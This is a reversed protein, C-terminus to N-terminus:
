KNINYKLRYCQDIVGCTYDLLDPDNYTEVICLLHDFMEKTSKKDLSCTELLDISNEVMDLAEHFLFYFQQDTLTLNYKRVYEKIEQIQTSYNKNQMHNASFTLM